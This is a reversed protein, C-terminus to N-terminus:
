QQLNCFACFHAMKPYFNLFFEPSPACGGGLVRGWQPPPSGRGLSDGEQPAEVEGGTWWDQIRGQTLAYYGSRGRVLAYYHITNDYHTRDTQGSVMIHWQGPLGYIIPKWVGHSVRWSHFFQTGECSATNVAGGCGGNRDAIIFLVMALGVGLGYTNILFLGLVLVASRLVLDLVMSSVDSVDHWSFDPGNMGNGFSHIVALLSTFNWSIKQRLM